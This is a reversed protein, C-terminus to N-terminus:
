ELQDIAEPNTKILSFESIFTDTLAAELTKVARMHIEGVKKPDGVKLEFMVYDMWVDTNSKGFQLTAMEHPRRANKLSIEPQMLEIAAM